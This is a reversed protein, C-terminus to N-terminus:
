SFDIRWFISSGFIHEDIKNGQVFDNLCCFMTKSVALNHSANKMIKILEAAPSLFESEFRSLDAYFVTELLDRAQRLLVARTSEFYNPYLAALYMDVLDSITKEDAQLIWFASYFLFCITLLLFAFFAFFVFRCNFNM